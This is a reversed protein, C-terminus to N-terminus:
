IPGYCTQKESLPPDNRSTEIDFFARGHLSSPLRDETSLSGDKPTPCELEMDRLYGEIHFVTFSTPDRPISYSSM